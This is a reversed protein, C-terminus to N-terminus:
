FQNSSFEKSIESTKDTSGNDVINIKWNYNTLSSSISEYLKNVSRSLSLEENLVPIVIQLSTKM